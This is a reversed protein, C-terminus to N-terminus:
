CPSRTRSCARTPTTLALEIYNHVYGRLVARVTPDGALSVSTGRAPTWRTLRLSAQPAALAEATRGQHRLM